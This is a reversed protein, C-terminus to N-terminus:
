YLVKKLFVKSICVLKAGQTRETKTSKGRQIEVGPKRSGMRGLEQELWQLSYSIQYSQRKVPREHM